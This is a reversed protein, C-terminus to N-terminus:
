APARKAPTSKSFTLFAIKSRTPSSAARRKASATKPVDVSQRQAEVELPAGAREGLDDLPADLADVHHEIEEEEVDRRRRDLEEDDADDEAHLESGTEDDGGERHNDAVDGERPDHGLPSRTELALIFSISL